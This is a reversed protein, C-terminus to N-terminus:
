WDKVLNEIVEIVTPLYKLIMGFANLVDAASIAISNDELALSLDSIVEDLKQIVEENKVSSQLEMRASSLVEISNRLLQKQM